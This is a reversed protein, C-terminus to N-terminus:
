ADDRLEPAPRAARLRQGTWRAVVALGIMLAVAIAAVGAQGEFVSQGLVVWATAHLMQIPWSITLYRRREVGALGLIWNQLAYPIGPTVRILATLLSEESPNRPKPILYGRGALFAELSPRLMGNTIQYALLQNAAVAPAIWLLATPWGFLPGAAAYFPSIPVPLICILAMAAFYVFPPMTKLDEWAARILDGVGGVGFVTAVALLGFLGLLCLVLLSWRQSRPTAGPESM